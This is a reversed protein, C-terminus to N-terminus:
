SLHVERRQQEVDRAPLRFRRRDTIICVGPAIALESAPDATEGAAEGCTTEFGPLADHQAHLVAGFEELHHECTPRRTEARNRDIGPQMGAFDLVDGPIRARPQEDRCGRERAREGRELLGDM